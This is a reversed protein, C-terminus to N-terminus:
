PDREAAIRRASENKTASVSKVKSALFRILPALTLTQIVSTFVVVSFTLSV